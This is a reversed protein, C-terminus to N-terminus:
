KGTFELLRNRFEREEKNIKSVIRNYELNMEEPQIEEYWKLIKEKENVDAKGSFLM